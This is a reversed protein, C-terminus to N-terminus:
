GGNKSKKIRWPREGKEEPFPSGAGRRTEPSPEQSHRDSGKTKQAKGELCTRKFDYRLDWSGTDREYLSFKEAAKLFSTRRRWEV